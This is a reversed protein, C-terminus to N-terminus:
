YAKVVPLGTAQAREEAKRLVGPLSLVTGSSVFGVFLMPVVMALVVFDVNRDAGFAHAVAIDVAVTVPKGLISALSLLVTARRVGSRRRIPTLSRSSRSRM